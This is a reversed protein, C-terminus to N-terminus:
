TDMLEAYDFDPWFENIYQHEDSFGVPENHYLQVRASIAVKSEVFARGRDTIRYMGSTKQKKNKPDLPRREILNLPICFAAFDRGTQGKIFDRYHHFGDGHRNTWWYLRALVKVASLNVSRDFVSDFRDCCPCIAGGKQWIVRALWARAAELTPSLDSSYFEAAAM